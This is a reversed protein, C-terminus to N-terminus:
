GYINKNGNHCNGTRKNLRALKVTSISINLQEAIERCSLNTNILEELKRRKYERPTEPINTKIWKNISYQSFGTEKSIKNISLGMNIYQPLVERLQKELIKRKSPINFKKMIIYLNKPDMNLEKAIENVTKESQLLEQIRSLSIQRSSFYPTTYTHLNNYNIIM